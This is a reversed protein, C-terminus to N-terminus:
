SRAKEKQKTNKSYHPLVTYMVSYIVMNVISFCSCKRIFIDLQVKQKPIQSEFLFIGKETM